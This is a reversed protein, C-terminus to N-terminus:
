TGAYSPITGHTVSASPRAVSHRACVLFACDQAVDEVVGIEKELFFLRRLVFPGRLSALCLTGYAQGVNKIARENFALTAAWQPRALHGQIDRATTICSPTFPRQEM